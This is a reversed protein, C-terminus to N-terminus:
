KEDLMWWKVKVFGHRKEISRGEHVLNVRSVREDRIFSPDGFPPLTKAELRSTGPTL